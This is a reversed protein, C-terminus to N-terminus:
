FSKHPYHFFLNTSLDMALANSVDTCYVEMLNFISHVLTNFSLFLINIVFPKFSTIQLEEMVVTTMEWLLEM